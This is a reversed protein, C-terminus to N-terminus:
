LTKLTYAFGISGGLVSGVIVFPTKFACTAAASAGVLIATPLFATISKVIRQTTLIRIDNEADEQSYKSEPINENALVTEVDNIHDEYEKKVEDVKVVAKNVSVATAAFATASSAVIGITKAHSKVFGVINSFASM